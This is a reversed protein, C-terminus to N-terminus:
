TLGINRTCIRSNLTIRCKNLKHDLFTKRSYLFLNSYFIGFVREPVKFLFGKFDVWATGNFDNDNMMSVLHSLKKAKVIFHFFFTTLGEMQNPDFEFFLLVSLLFVRFRNKNGLCQDSLCVFCASFVQFLLQCLSFSQFLLVRFCFFRLINTSFCCIFIVLEFCYELFTWKHFTV